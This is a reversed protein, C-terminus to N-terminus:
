RCAIVNEVVDKFDSEDSGRAAKFDIDIRVLDPRYKVSDAFKNQCDALTTERVFMLLYKTRRIPRELENRCRADYSSIRCEGATASATAALVALSLLVNRNGM